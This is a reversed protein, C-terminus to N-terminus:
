DNMFGEMVEKMITPLFEPTLGGSNIQACRERVTRNYIGMQETSMKSLINQFEDDTM